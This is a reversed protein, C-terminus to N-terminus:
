RLSSIRTFIRGDSAYYAVAFESLNEAPDDFELPGKSMVAGSSTLSFKEYDNGSSVIAFMGQRNDRDAFAQIEKM